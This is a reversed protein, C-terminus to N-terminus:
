WMAQEYSQRMGEVTMDEAVPDAGLPQPDKLAVPEQLEEPEGGGGFPKLEELAVPEQLVEPERGGGFPKLEELAVPEQLVEPERGGGVAEVATAGGELGGLAGYFRGFAKGLDGAGETAGGALGNAWASVPGERLRKVGGALARMQRVSSEVDAEDAELDLVRGLVRRVGGQADLLARDVARARWRLASVLGAYNRRLTSEWAASSIAPVGQPPSSTRGSQQLLYGGFRRLLRTCAALHFNVETITACLDHQSSGALLLLPPLLTNSSNQFTATSVLHSHTRTLLTHITHHRSDSWAPCTPDLLCALPTPLHVEPLPLELSSIPAPVGGLVGARWGFYIALLISAFLVVTSTLLGYVARLVRREQHIPYYMQRLRESRRVGDRSPPRWLLKSCKPVQDWDNTFDIPSHPDPTQLYYSDDGESTSENAETLPTSERMRWRRRHGPLSCARQQRPSASPSILSGVLRRLTTPTYFQEPDPTERRPTSPAVLPSAAEPHVRISISLVDTGEAEEDEVTPLTEAAPHSGAHSYWAASITPNKVESITEPVLNAPLSLRGLRCREAPHITDPESAM